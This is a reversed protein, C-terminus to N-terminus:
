SSSSNAEFALEEVFDALRDVADPLGASKAAKAATELRAADTLWAILEHALREPSLDKENIALAGGAAMIAAANKAQDHDLAHPYPVLLAPRGIVALESVTSAGSRCIVFHANAIRNAMDAFFAATEASQGLESLKAELAAQDESRVQQTLAIRRRLDEPLLALAAPIVESFVHAGQSGGFVLLNLVGDEAPNSYPTEAAKLVAERVPNGTHRLRAKSKALGDTDELSTAIATARHALLKNARGLVANAEHIVTPLGLLAGGLVPPVTPYGGFGVVIHSKARAIKARAQLTGWALQRAANLKAFFGGGSPSASAVEIMQRVPLDNAYTKARHDTILDVVHGRAVLADALAVAPFLHGGTGGAALMINLKATM